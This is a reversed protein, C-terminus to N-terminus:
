EEPSQTTGTDAPQADSQVSQSAYAAGGSVTGIVLSWSLLLALSKQFINMQDGGRASRIANRNNRQRLEQIKM